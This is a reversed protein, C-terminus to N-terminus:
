QGNRMPTLRIKTIGCRPCQQRFQQVWESCVMQVQHMYPGAMVQVYLTSGVRKDLRCYQQMAPPVIQQWADVIESNKEFTRSRKQFYSFLEDGIQSGPLRPEAQWGSAGRLRQEEESCPIAIFSLEKKGKNWFKIKGGHTHFSTGKFVQKYDSEEDLLAYLSSYSLSKLYLWNTDLSVVEKQGPKLILVIKPYPNM